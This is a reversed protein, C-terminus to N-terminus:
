KNVNSTNAQDPAPPPSLDEVAFRASLVEIKDPGLPHNSGIVIAKDEDSAIRRNADTTQVRIVGRDETELKGGDKRRIVLITTFGATRMDGLDREVSSLMPLANAANPDPKGSRM